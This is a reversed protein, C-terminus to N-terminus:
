LPRRGDTQFRAAAPREGYRLHPSPRPSATAPLVSCRTRCAVPDIM